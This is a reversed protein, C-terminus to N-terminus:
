CSSLIRELPKCKRQSASQQHAQRTSSKQQSAAHMLHAMTRAKGNADSHLTAVELGYVLCSLLSAKWLKIKSDKPEQTTAVAMECDSGDPIKLKVKGKKVKRREDCDLSCSLHHDSETSQLQKGAFRGLRGLLHSFSMRFVIQLVM